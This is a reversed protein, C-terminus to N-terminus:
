LAKKKLIDEWTDNREIKSSMNGPSLAVAEPLNECADGLVPVHLYCDVGHGEMSKLTLDGGFYRAYIRALPLGFGRSPPETINQDYINGTAFMVHEKIHGEVLEGM